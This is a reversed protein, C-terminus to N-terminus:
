YNRIRCYITVSYKVQSCLYTLSNIRSNFSKTGKIECIEDLATYM